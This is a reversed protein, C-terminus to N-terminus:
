EKLEKIAAEIDKGFVQAKHSEEGKFFDYRLGQAEPMEGVKKMLEKVSIGSEKAAAITAISAHSNAIAVVRRPYGETKRKIVRELKAVDNQYRQEMESLKEIREPVEDEPSLAWAVMDTTAGVEEQFEKSQLLKRYEPNQGLGKVGKLRKAIGPGAKADPEIELYEFAGKPLYINDDSVGFEKLLDYELWVQEQTRTTGSDRLHFEINQIAEKIAELKAEEDNWQDFDPNKELLLSEMIKNISETVQKKGTETLGRKPDTKDKGSEGHRLLFVTMKPELKETEKSAEIEGKFFKAENIM